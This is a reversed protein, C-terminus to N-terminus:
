AEVVEWLDTDIVIPRNVAKYAENCNAANIFITSWDLIKYLGRASHIHGFVHLKPKVREVHSLLIKCGVNPDEGKRYFESLDGVGYPPQHTVLIDVNDPIRKWILDASEENYYPWAWGYFEKTHPSGYINLGELQVLDDELHIVNEPVESKYLSPNKWWGKEHNGTILIRHKCELQSFWRLFKITETYEGVHTFDGAHIYIDINEPLKLEEHFTHTDSLVCIRAM